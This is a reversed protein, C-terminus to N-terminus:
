RRRRSTRRSNRTVARTRAASFFKSLLKPLQSIEQTSAGDTDHLLHGHQELMLLFRTGAMTDVAVSVGRGDVAGTPTFAVALRGGGKVRKTKAQGTMELVDAIAGLVDNAHERSLDAM